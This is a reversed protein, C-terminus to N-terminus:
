EITLQWSVTEAPRHTVIIKRGVPQTDLAHLVLEYQQDRHQLSPPSLKDTEYRERWYETTERDVMIDWGPRFWSQIWDAITPADSQDLDLSSVELLRAFHKRSSLLLFEGTNRLYAIGARGQGDTAGGDDFPNLVPLHESSITAVAVHETSRLIEISNAVDQVSTDAMVFRYGVWLEALSAALAEDGLGSTPDVYNAFTSLATSTEVAAEADDIIQRLRVDDFDDSALFEAALGIPELVHDGLHIVSKHAPTEHNWSGGYSQVICEGIFKGVGLLRPDDVENEDSYMDGLRPMNDLFGDLLNLELRPISELTTPLTTPKTRQAAAVMNHMCRELTIEVGIDGGTIRFNATEIDNSGRTITSASYGIADINDIPEQLESPWTPPKVEETLEQLEENRQRENEMVAAMDKRKAEILPEDEPQSEEPREALQQQMREKRQERDPPPSTSSSSSNPPSQASPPPSAGGPSTTDSSTSPGSAPRRKARSQSKSTPPAPSTSPASGDPMMSWHEVLEGRDMRRNSNLTRRAEAFFQTMEDTKNAVSYDIRNIFKAADRQPIRRAAVADIMDTIVRQVHQVARSDGTDLGAVFEDTGGEWQGQRILQEGLLTRYLGTDPERDVVKRLVGEARSRYGQRGKIDAVLAEMWSSPASQLQQEVLTIAEDGRGMASLSIAKGAIARSNSSQDFLEAARHHDGQHYARWAQSLDGM